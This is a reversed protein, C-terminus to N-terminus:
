DDLGGGLASLADRIEHDVTEVDTRTLHGLRASLRSPIALLRARVDRLIGAWEREVDAAALLEGAARANRQEERQAQATVLRLKAAKFDPDALTRRRTLDRLHDCYAPVAVAPDYRGRSARPVVGGRTHDTLARPTIGLM